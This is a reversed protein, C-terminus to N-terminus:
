DRRRAATPSWFGLRRQAAQVALQRFTRAFKVDPPYEVPAAWGGAVLEQEVLRGDALYVYRLLRADSTRDRESVDKVLYLLPSSTVLARNAEAAAVYGPQGREPTDIGIYRVREVKDNVLLDITDGDIVDVLVAPTSGPAPGPAALAPFALAFLLLLAALSVVLILRNRILLRAVLPKM